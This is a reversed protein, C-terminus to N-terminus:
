THSLFFVMRVFAQSYKRSAYLCDGYLCYRKGLESPLLNKECIWISMWYEASEYLRNGLLRQISEVSISPFM